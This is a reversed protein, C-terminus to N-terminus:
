STLSSTNKTEMHARSQCTFQGVAVTCFMILHPIFYEQNGHTSSVSMYVIWCSCHLVNHPSPHLIRPKWTHELCVHLSDLLQLASCSSTLSSTNKTEMHARSLCTCQGVAVTCFMILHPIFYEQNGHTSSVSMYVIWCSCPLVNHPSPHLIRPKWTHELCVHLSDLLQLASCSSTLSSTNKTEMHARSLCTFQGVAVSLLVIWCSCSFMILHPIFYEQNGHTSSVSM